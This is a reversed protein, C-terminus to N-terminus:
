YKIGCGSSHLGVDQFFLLALVGANEGGLEAELHHAVNGFVEHM